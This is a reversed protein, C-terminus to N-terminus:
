PLLIFASLTKWGINTIFFIEKDTIFFLGLFEFFQYMYIGGNTIMTYSTSVYHMQKM